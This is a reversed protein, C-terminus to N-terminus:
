VSGITLHVLLSECSTRRVEQIKKARIAAIFSNEQLPERLLPEAGDDYESDNGGKKRGSLEM